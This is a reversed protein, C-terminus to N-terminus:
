GTKDATNKARKSRDQLREITWETRTKVGEGLRDDTITPLFKELYELDPKGGFEEIEILLHDIARYAAHREWPKKTQKRISYLKELLGTKRTKGIGLWAGERVAALDHYLLRIGENEPDIQAIAYALECEMYTKPSVADLRKRWDEMQPESYSDTAEDRIKRWQAKRQEQIKLLNLLEPLAKSVRAKGLAKIARFQITEEPSKLFDQLTNVAEDTKINGIGTVALSRTYMREQTDLATKKLYELTEPFAIEGL